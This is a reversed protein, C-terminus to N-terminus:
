NGKIKDMLVRLQQQAQDYNKQKFLDKIEALDRNLQELDPHETLNELKEELQNIRSQLMDVRSLEVREKVSLINRIENIIQDPDEITPLKEKEQELKTIVEDPYGLEKAQSILKDLILMYKQVFSKAKEVNKQTAKERLMKNIDLIIRQLKDLNKKAEDSNDDIQNQTLEMLQDIKTFDIEANHRDAIAKLSTLYKKMRDFNSQLDPKPAVRDSMAAAMPRDSLMGTIQRFDKMASLFHKETAKRDKESIAARLLKIEELGHEYLKRAEDPVSEMNDFQRAIQQSATVAIRLVSNPNSKPELQPKTDASKKPEEPKTDASKKPEEPKTDASKKPEEPEDGVEKDIPKIELQTPEIDRDTQAEIPSINASIAMSAILLFISFFAIKNKM